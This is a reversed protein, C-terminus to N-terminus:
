AGPNLIAISLNLYSAFSVWVLYPVFLWAALMDQRRATVIFGVISLWMLVIVAFALWPMEAGFWIPSWAFNLLMQAVWFKMATSRPNDMWIRWGAIAILVYLTTWVPAFVWGPPNLPPKTLQEFWAGPRTQTGILFGVGNVLVLFALLVVWSNPKRYEATTAAM